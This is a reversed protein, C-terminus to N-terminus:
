PLLSFGSPPLPAVLDAPSPYAGMSVGGEGSGICPSASALHFDTPVSVFIPNSNISNSDGSVSIWSSFTRNASSLTPSGSTDSWVAVNSNTGSFYDNNRFILGGNSVSTNRVWIQVATNNFLINNKLITGKSNSLSIGVACKYLVNNIYQNGIAPSTSPSGDRIGAQGVSHIVNRRFVNYSCRSEAFIGYSDGSFSPDIDHILNDQFVSNMAGADLRFGSAEYQTDVYSDRLMSSVRNNEVLLRQAESGLLLFSTQFQGAAYSNKSGKNNVSINDKIWVDGGYNEINVNVGYNRDFTNGSILNVPPGTYTTGRGVRDFNIIRSMAGGNSVGNNGNNTFRNNVIEIGQVPATDASGTNVVRLTSKTVTGDFNFGEIRIYSRNFIQIAGSHSAADTVSSRWIVTEGSNAKVTIPLNNAGSAPWNGVHEIYTGAMVVVADGASTACNVGAQITLKPTTQSQAQACSYGNNGTKAVHYTAAPALGPLALLLLTLLCSKELYIATTNV